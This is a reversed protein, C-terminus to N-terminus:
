QFRRNLALVNNVALLGDPVCLAGIRPSASSQPAHRGPLLRITRALVDDVDVRRSSRGLIRRLGDAALDRLVVIV